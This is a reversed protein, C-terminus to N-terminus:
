LIEIENVNWFKQNENTIKLLRKEIAEFNESTLEIESENNITIYM